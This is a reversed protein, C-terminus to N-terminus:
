KKKGKSGGFMQALMVDDRESSDQRANRPERVAVKWFVAVIVVMWAWWPIRSGPGFLSGSVEYATNMYQDMTPWRRQEDPFEARYRRCIEEALARLDLVDGGLEATAPPAAGSPPETM